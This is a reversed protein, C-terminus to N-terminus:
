ETSGASINQHEIDLIHCLECTCQSLNTQEGIVTEVAVQIPQGKSVIAGKSLVRGKYTTKGAISM